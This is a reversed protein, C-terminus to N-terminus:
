GSGAVALHQARQEFVWQDCAAQDRIRVQGCQGEFVPQCEARGIAVERPEASELPLIGEGSVSLCLQGRTETFATSNLFPMAANERTATGPDIPVIWLDDRGHTRNVLLLKGDPSWDNVRENTNLGMGPV